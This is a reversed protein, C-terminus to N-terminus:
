LKTGKPKGEGALILIRERVEEAIWMGSESLRTVFPEISTTLGQRKAELLVRLTGWVKLEAAQAIERARGDDLLVVCDPNELALAMAAIEGPGLDLALWESPIAKADVIKLWSHENPDPVDYGRRIGERLENVVAGPIWVQDFLEALWALAGARYLYVMPSTNTIAEPM